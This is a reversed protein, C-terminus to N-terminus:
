PHTTSVQYRALFLAVAERVVYGRRDQDITEGRSSAIRGLVVEGLLIDIFQNAAFDPDAIRFDHLRSLRRVYHKVAGRAPETAGNLFSVGMEYLRPSEWIALRVIAIAEPRSWFNVIALGIAYLVENPSRPGSTAAIVPNLSMQGWLRAIAEDFLARKGPFHNYLTRRAVGSQLAIQAMSSREYGRALFVEGAARLIAGRTAEPGLPAASADIESSRPM